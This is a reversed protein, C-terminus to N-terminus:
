NCTGCGPPSPSTLPAMDVNDSSDTLGVPGGFDARLLIFSFILFLDVVTGLFFARASKLFRVVVAVCKICPRVVNFLGFHLMFASPKNAPGKKTGTSM